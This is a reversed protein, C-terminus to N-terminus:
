CLCIQFCPLLLRVGDTNQPNWPFGWPIMPIRSVTDTYISSFVCFVTQTKTHMLFGQCFVTKDLIKLSPWPSGQFDMVGFRHKNFIQVVYNFTHCLITFLDKVFCLKTLTKSSGFRSRHGLVRNTTGFSHKDLIEKPCFSLFVTQTKSFRSLITDTM